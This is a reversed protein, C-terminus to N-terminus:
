MIEQCILLFATLVSVWIDDKTIDDILYEYKETLPLLIKSIYKGEKAIDEIGFYSLYFERRISAPLGKRAFKAMEEKLGFGGNMLKRAEDIKELQFHRNDSNFDINM